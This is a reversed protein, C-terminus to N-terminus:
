FPPDSLPVDTRTVRDKKWYELLSTHYHDLLRERLAEILEIIAAAEQPTLETPLSLTLTRPRGPPSALVSM